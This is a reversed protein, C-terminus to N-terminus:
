FLSKGGELLELMNNPNNPTSLLREFNHSKLNGMIGRGFPGNGSVLASGGMSPLGSM